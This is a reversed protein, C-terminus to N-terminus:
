HCQILKTEIQLYVVVERRELLLMAFVPNSSLVLFVSSSLMISFAFWGGILELTPISSLLVSPKFYRPDNRSSM